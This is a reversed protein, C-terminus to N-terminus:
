NIEKRYHHELANYGMKKYITGVADPSLKELAVMSVFDCKSDIAHQEYRKMLRIATITGRYEPEVYWALESCMMKTPELFSPAIMGVIFGKDPEVVTFIYPSEALKEYYERVNDPFEFGAEKYFRQAAEIIYELDENSM